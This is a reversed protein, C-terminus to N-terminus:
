VGVRPRFRGFPVIKNHVDHGIDARGLYAIGAVECQHTIVEEETQGFDPVNPPIPSWRGLRIGAVKRIEPNSMIHLLDRDIRYMYESVEELMLVHGSLDPQVPTGILHSLIMINFAATPRGSMVSPELTDPAADVLYSLARVVAEEGGERNLDAAMPGHALNEFGRKYLAALMSGADSYGLYTKHRAADSLGALV